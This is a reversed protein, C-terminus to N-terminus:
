RGCTICVKIAELIPDYLDPYGAHLFMCCHLLDSIRHLTRGGPDSGETRLTSVVGPIM